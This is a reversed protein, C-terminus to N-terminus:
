VSWLAATPHLVCFMGDSSIFLHPTLLPYHPANIKSLILIENLEVSLKNEYHLPITQM